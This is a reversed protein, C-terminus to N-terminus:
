HRKVDGTGCGIPEGSVGGSSWVAGKRPEEGVGTTKKRWEM